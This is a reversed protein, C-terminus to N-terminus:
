PFSAPVTGNRAIWDAYAPSEEAVLDYAQRALRVIEDAHPALPGGPHWALVHRMWMPNGALPRIVVDAGPRFTPQCASVARGTSILERRLAAAVMQYQVRPVFGMMEAVEFLHEPWGTGDSPALVWADDALEALAIEARDALRHGAPLVVFTPEIRVVQLNILQDPRMRHGPYDGVLAADLRGSRIMELLMRSSGAHVTFQVGPLFAAIRDVLDIVMPSEIAAMRAGAVLSGRPRAEMLEDINALAARIRALVFDGFPTPTVGLRGRVFVEAGIANEIRRLQATLAPQSVGLVAAARTVSGNEAVTRLVRLHRLELQM